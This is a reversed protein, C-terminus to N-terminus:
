NRAPQIRITLVDGGSTVYTDEHRNALAVLKRCVTKRGYCEILQYRGGRTVAVVATDYGRTSDGVQITTEM